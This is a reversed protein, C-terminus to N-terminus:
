RTESAGSFSPGEQAPLMIIIPVSNKGFPPLFTPERKQSM